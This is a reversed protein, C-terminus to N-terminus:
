VSVLLLGASARVTDEELKTAAPLIEIPAAFVIVAAPSPAPFGAVMVVPLSPSLIPVAALWFIPKKSTVGTTWCFWIGSTAPSGEDVTLAIRTTSSVKPNTALLQHLLLMLSM